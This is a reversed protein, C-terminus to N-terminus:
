SAIKKWNDSPSGECNEGLILVQFCRSKSVLLRLGGKTRRAHLKLHRFVMPCCFGTLFGSQAYRLHNKWSKCFLQGMGCSQDVLSSFTASSDTRSCCQVLTIHEHFTKNRFSLLKHRMGQTCEMNAGNVCSAYASKRAFKRALGKINSAFGTHVSGNAATHEM